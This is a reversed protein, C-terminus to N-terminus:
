NKTVSNDCFHTKTEYNDIPLSKDQCFVSSFFEAFGSAIDNSGKFLLDNFCMEMPIGESFRLGKIYTWFYKPNRYLSNAVEEYYSSQARKIKSKVVRRIERYKNLWFATKFKKYKRFYTEKTKIMKIIQGNFWVPFVKGVQKAFPVCKSFITYLIQYFNNVAVDVDNCGLVTEWSQESILSYLLNFNAKKFNYKTNVVQECNCQVNDCDFALILAPHHRDLPLIPDNELDVKCSGLSPSVVVLDLMVNNFNRINNIQTFNAFNLFSEFDCVKQSVPNLVYERINFDGVIICKSESLKSEVCDYFRRYKDIDSGPAFYVVVVYVFSYVSAFLNLRVCLVELDDDFIKCETATYSSKIALLVGGGDLKGTLKNDRDKRFISLSQNSFESSLVSDNLWTETLAVIDVDINFLSCKLDSLKSKIGGVNQYYLYLEKM